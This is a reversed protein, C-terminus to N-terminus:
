AAIALARVLLESIQERDVDLSMLVWRVKLGMPVYAFQPESSNGTVRRGMETRLCDQVRQILRIKPTLM